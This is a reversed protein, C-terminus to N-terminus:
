QGIIDRFDAGNHWARMIFNDLAEKGGPTDSKAGLILKELM